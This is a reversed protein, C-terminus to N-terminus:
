NHFPFWTHQVPFQTFYIIPLLFLSSVCGCFPSLLIMVDDFIMFDTIYYLLVVTYKWFGLDTLCQLLMIHYVNHFPKLM